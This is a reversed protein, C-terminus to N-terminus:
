CKSTVVGKQQEIAKKIDAGNKCGYMCHVVKPEIAFGESAEPSKAGVVRNETIVLSVQGTCGQKLIQEAEKLDKLTLTIESFKQEM